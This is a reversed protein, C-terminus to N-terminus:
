VLVQWRGSIVYISTKDNKLWLNMLNIIKLPCYYELSNCIQM